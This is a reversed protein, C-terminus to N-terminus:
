LMRFDAHQKTKPSRTFWAPRQSHLGLSRLSWNTIADALCSGLISYQLIQNLWLCTVFTEWMQPQFATLHLLQMTKIQSFLSVNLTKKKKQLLVNINLGPRQHNIWVTYFRLFSPDLTYGICSLDLVAVSFFSSLHIVTYKMILIPCDLGHLLGLSNM